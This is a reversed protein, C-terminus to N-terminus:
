ARLRAQSSRDKKTRISRAEQDSMIRLATIDRAREEKESVPNAPWRRLAALRRANKRGPFNAPKM